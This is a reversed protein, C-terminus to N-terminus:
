VRSNRGVEGPYLQVDQPIQGSCNGATSEFSRSGGTSTPPTRSGNRHSRFRLAGISDDHLQRGSGPRKIVRGGCHTAHPRLLTRLIDIHRDPCRIVGIRHNIAKRQCKRSTPISLYWRWISLTGFGGTPLTGGTLKTKKQNNKM